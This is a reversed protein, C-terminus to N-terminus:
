AHIPDASRVCSPRFTAHRPSALRPWAGFQALLRYCAMFDDLSAGIAGNEALNACDNVLDDKALQARHDPLRGVALRLGRQKANAELVNWAWEKLPRGIRRPRTAETNLGLHHESAPFLELWKAADPKIAAPVTAGRSRCLLQRRQAKSEDM